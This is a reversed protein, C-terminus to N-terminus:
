YYWSEGWIEIENEGPTFDDMLQLPKKIKLKEERKTADAFGDEDCTEATHDVLIDGTVLNYDLTKFYDCPAGFNITAGILYWNNNQFRYRHTYNWKQRSGGFHNIVICKREIAIGYFPNGMMGGAQTSLVPSTTQHWLKWGDDTKKYVALCHKYGLDALIPTEYVAVAEEDSDADLNGYVLKVRKWFEPTFDDIAAAETLTIEREFNRSEVVKDFANIREQKAFSLQPITKRIADAQAPFPPLQFQRPKNTKSYYKIERIEINVLIRDGVIGNDVSQRYSKRETWNKESDYKYEYTEIGLPNGTYEISQKFILNNNADYRGITKTSKQTGRMHYDQKIREKGDESYTYEEKHELANNELWIEAIRRGKEDYNFHVNRGDIVYSNFIVPLYYEKMMKYTSKRTQGLIPTEKILIPFKFIYTEPPKPITDYDFDHVSITHEDGDSKKLYQTYGKYDFENNGYTRYHIDEVLIQDKDYFLWHYTYRKHDEIQELLLLNKFAEDYHYKEIRDIQNYEYEKYQKRGDPLYETYSLLNFKKGDFYKTNEIKDKPKALQYSFVSYVKRHKFLHDDEYSKLITSNGLNQNMKLQEQAQVLGYMGTLCSICILKLFFIRNKMM